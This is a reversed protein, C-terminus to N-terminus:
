RFNWIFEQRPDPEDFWTTYTTGAYTRDQTAQSHEAAHGDVFLINATRENGHRLGVDTPDGHFGSSAGVSFGLDPSIGDFLLVTRTPEEIAELRAWYAGSGLEGFYQNMKFTRSGAGGTNATDEGFSLYVPDQKFPNYNRSSASSYSLQAQGVYPDLANFWLVKGKVANSFASDQFPQPFTGGHDTTYLHSALGMQRLNSLCVTKRAADKASSLVPLLLSVILVIISIVVLLEILTFAPRQRYVAHRPPTEHAPRPYPPNGHLLAPKDCDM